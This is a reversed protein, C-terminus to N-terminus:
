RRQAPERDTLDIEAAASRQLAAAEAQARDRLADGARHAEELIEQTKEGILEFLESPNRGDPGVPGVPEAATSLEVELQSIRAEQRELAHSVESLFRDVERRDYGRRAVLFSRTAVDDSNLM